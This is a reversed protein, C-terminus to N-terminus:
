NKHFVETEAVALYIVWRAFYNTNAFAAHQVSRMRWYAGKAAQMSVVGM